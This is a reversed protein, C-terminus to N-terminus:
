LDSMVDANCNILKPELLQIIMVKQNIKYNLLFFMDM